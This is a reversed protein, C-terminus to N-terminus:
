RLRLDMARSIFYHLYSPWCLKCIRIAGINWAYRRYFTSPLASNKSSIWKHFKPVLGIPKMDIPTRYSSFSNFCRQHTPSSRSCIQCWSLQSSFYTSPYMYKTSISVNSILPSIYTHQKKLVHQYLILSLLEGKSKNTSHSSFLSFSLCSWSWPILLHIPM